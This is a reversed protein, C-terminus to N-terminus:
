IQGSGFGDEEGIAKQTIKEVSGHLVLQPAVYNKKEAM